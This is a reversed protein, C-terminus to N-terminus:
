KKPRKIHIPEPKGDRKAQRRAAAREYATAPLPHRRRAPLDGGM